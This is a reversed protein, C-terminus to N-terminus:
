NCEQKGDAIDNADKIYAWMQFADSRRQGAEITWTEAGYLFIPLVGLDKPVDTQISAQLLIKECITKVCSVKSICIEQMQLNKQQLVM